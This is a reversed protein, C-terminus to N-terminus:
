QSKSTPSKEVRKDRLERKDIGQRSLIMPKNEINSLDQITFGGFSSDLNTREEFMDILMNMDSLSTTLISHLPHRTGGVGRGDIDDSNRTSVLDFLRDTPPPHRTM